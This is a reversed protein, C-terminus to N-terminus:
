LRVAQRFPESLGNRAPVFSPHSGFKMRRIKERKKEDIVVMVRLEKETYRGSEGSDLPVM